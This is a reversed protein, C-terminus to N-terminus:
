FKKKQEHKLLKKKLRSYIDKGLMGTMGGLFGLILTVALKLLYFEVISAPSVAEALFPMYPWLSAGGWGGMIFGGLFPAANEQM